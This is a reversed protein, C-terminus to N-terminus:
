TEEEEEDGEVVWSGVKNGNADVIRGKDGVNFLDTTRRVMASEVAAGVEWAKRMADNELEIELKFRKM